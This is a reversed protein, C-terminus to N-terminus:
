LEDCKHLISIACKHASHLVRQQCIFVQFNIGFTENNPRKNRCLEIYLHRRILMCIRTIPTVGPRLGSLPLTSLAWNM